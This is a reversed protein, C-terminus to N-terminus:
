ARCRAEGHDRLISFPNGVGGKGVAIAGQVEAVGKTGQEGMGVDAVEDMVFTTGADVRGAESTAGDELNRFAYGICVGGVGDAASDVPRIQEGQWKLICAKSRRDHALETGATDLPVSLM